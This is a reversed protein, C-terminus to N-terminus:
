ELSLLHKWPIVFPLYLIWVMFFSTMAKPYPKNKMWAPLAVFGLWCSKYFLQLLLVPTFQAPWWLGAWSLVAIGLWLSGVIKTIESIAYMGSFIYRHADQTYFLCTLGIWGAVFVNALYVLKLGIM